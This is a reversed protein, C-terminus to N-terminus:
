YSFSFKLATEVFSIFLYVLTWIKEAKPLQYHEVQWQLEELQVRPSCSQSSLSQATKNKLDIRILWFTWLEIGGLLLAPYYNEWSFHGFVSNVETFYSNVM